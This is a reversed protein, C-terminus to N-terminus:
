DRALHTHRQGGAQNPRRRIGGPEDQGRAVVTVHFSGSTILRSARRYRSAFVLLRKRGVSCFTAGESIRLAGAVQKLDAM